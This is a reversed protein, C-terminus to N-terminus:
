LTYKAVIKFYTVVNASFSKLSHCTLIGDGNRSKQLVLHEPLCLLNEFCMKLIGGCICLRKFIAFHGLTKIYSNKKKKLLTFANETLAYLDLM